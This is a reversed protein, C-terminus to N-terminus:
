RRLYTKRRAERCRVAEMMTDVAASDILPGMDVNETLPNGVKLKSLESILKSKVEGYIGKEVLVLKIADCRQGSFSTIGVAIKSAALVPDADDLVVAPDGGGMEMIFQKVGAMGLIKKGTETSGTFSIVNIRRDAVLRGSERGPLTVVSFADAPFGAKEVIRSFLLVALPDASPPKVIFANGAVVSYVFKNVTDFLPYNFPVIGLVVGYPEKRVIGESELTHESWDGPVYEGFIKRVDMEAKRMRDISAYVEGQAQKRTKGADLMLVHIFDEANQEMLDAIRRILELRRDGPTDRIEWKGRRYTKELAEDIQSWELRPVKAILSGDLPSYVPSLESSTDWSGGIFTNFVAVDEKETFIGKFIGSRLRLEVM